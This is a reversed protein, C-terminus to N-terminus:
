SVEGGAETIKQRYYDLEDQVLDPDLYGPDGFSPVRGNTDGANCANSANREAQSPSESAVNTVGTVGLVRVFADTFQERKYGRVTEGEVRVPMTKIRHTRLLKSLGQPSITKGYWDGWPSEEIEVLHAILDATRLRDGAGNEFVTYIDNLLRATLSDDEREDGTSLTLAATAAHHPWDGGALDAIALLPEWMEQAREDLEDLLHPRAAGLYDIQPELWDALHARLTEGAPAVDRRRFREIPEERTRRKLRIPISRDVLTDPLFDGIGIFAKASFVKFKELKSRNTGGMRYAVAGRRYGANLLGRLEERERAKFVADAEDLLLTPSLEEIARFLAADSINMSPLPERVLLQFVDLGLRSKGSQKEASSIALYPTTEAADIAHTHAVWLAVADAQTESLVVYRRIFGAVDNLLTKGYSSVGEARESISPATSTTPFGGAPRNEAKM